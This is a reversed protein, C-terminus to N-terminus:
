ESGVQLMRNRRYYVPEKRVIKRSQITYLEAARCRVCGAWRVFKTSCSNVANIRRHQSWSCYVHERKAHECASHDSQRDHATICAHLAVQRSPPSSRCAYDCKTPKEKTQLQAQLHTIKRNLKATWIAVYFRRRPVPKAGIRRYSLCFYVNTTSTQCLYKQFGNGAASNQRKSKYIPSYRWDLGQEYEHQNSATQFNSMKVFQLLHIWLGLDSPTKQHEKATCHVSRDHGAHAHLSYTLHKQAWIKDYVCM